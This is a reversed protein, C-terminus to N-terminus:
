SKEELFYGERGLLYDTSVGFYDAILKLNRCTTNNKGSLISRFTTHRIGAEKAIQRVSIKKMTVATDVLSNLRESLIFESQKM